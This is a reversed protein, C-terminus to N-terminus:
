RPTLRKSSLGCLRTADLPEGERANKLLRANQRPDCTRCAVSRSIEESFDGLLSRWTHLGSDYMHILAIKDGLTLSVKRKRTESPPPSAGGLEVEPLNASAAVPPGAVETASSETPNQPNATRPAELHLRAAANSHVTTEAAAAASAISNAHLTQLTPDTLVEPVASDATASALVCAACPVPPTMRLARMGLKHQVRLPGQRRGTPILFPAKHAPPPCTSCPHRCRHRRHNHGLHAAWFGAVRSPPSKGVTTTLEHDHSPTQTIFNQGTSRM